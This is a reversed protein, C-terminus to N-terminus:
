VKFLLTKLNRRFVSPAPGKLVINAKRNVIQFNNDSNKRLRYKLVNFLIAKLLYLYYPRRQKLELVQFELVLVIIM